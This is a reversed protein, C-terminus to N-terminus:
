MKSDPIDPPLATEIKSLQDEWWGLAEVMVDRSDWLDFAPGKMWFYDLEEVLWDGTEDTEIKGDATYALGLAQEISFEYEKLVANREREVFDWFIAHDNRNRKWGDWAAAIAAHIRPDRQADIKALVHGVTRLLVVCATWYIRLKATNRTEGELMEFAAKCDDLPQWAKLKMAASSLADTNSEGRHPKLPIKFGLLLSLSLIDTAAASPRWGEM